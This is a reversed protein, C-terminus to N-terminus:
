PPVVAGTQDALRDSAPPGADPVGPGVVSVALLLAGRCFPPRRRAFRGKAPGRPDLRGADMRQRSVRRPRLRDGDDHGGSVLEGRAGASVARSRPLRHQRRLGRVPRARGGHFPLDWGAAGGSLRALLRVSRGLSPGYPYRAPLPEAVLGVATTKQRQRGHRAFALPRGTRSLPQGRNEGFDSSREADSIGSSVLSM